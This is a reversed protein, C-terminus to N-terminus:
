PLTVKELKIGFPAAASSSSPNRPHSPSSHHHQQISSSSSASMGLLGMSGCASAAPTQTSLLLQDSSLMHQFGGSRVGLSSLSSQPRSRDGQQQLQLQEDGEDLEGAQEAEGMPVPQQLPDLQQHPRLSM